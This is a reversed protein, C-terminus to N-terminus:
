YTIKNLIFSRITNNHKVCFSMLLKTVFKHVLYIGCQHLINRTSCSHGIMYCMDRAQELLEREFANQLVKLLYGGCLKNGSTDGLHHNCNWWMAKTAVIVTLAVSVKDRVDKTKLLKDAANEVVASPDSRVVDNSNETILGLELAAYVALVATECIKSDWRKITSTYHYVQRLTLM